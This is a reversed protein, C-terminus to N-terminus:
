VRRLSFLSRVLHLDLVHLGWLLGGYVAGGALVAGLLPLSPQSLLFLWMFLAALLTKALIGWAPTLALKQRVLYTTYLFVLLETAVTTASAGLFGYPPIFILNAVLNFLTALFYPGLLLRSHGAALLTFIMVSNLYSGVLAFGLIKFASSSAAFAPGGILLILPSAVALIGLALPWSLISNVEFARQFLSTVRTLNEKFYGSMLAFVSSGFIGPFSLLVELIKYPANYLGVESNGKMLYLMLSDVRFYIVALFLVLGLPAAERLLEWWLSLEIKGGAFGVRAWALNLLFVALNGIVVAGILYPLSLGHAVVWFVLLLNVGRGAVDSISALPMLLKAQLYALPVLSLSALLEALVAVLFGVLLPRFAPLWSIALLALGFVLLGLFLKLGLLNTLIRPAELPAQAIRRVSTMFLGLDVLVVAIGLYAFITSYDGFGHPGLHRSLTALIFVSIIVTAAKGAVQSLTNWFLRQADSM